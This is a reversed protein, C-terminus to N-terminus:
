NSSPRSPKTGSNSGGNGGQSRDSNGGSPINGSGGPMEGGNMKDFGSRDKSNSNTTTSSSETIQTEIQVKDGINLGSKIQVYSEDAVGTEVIVEETTGDENVKTVYEERNANESIADIPVSTAGKEESLIITCSVSMGLKVNGDNEFEITAGFTTGSSAYTGVSDIKTM